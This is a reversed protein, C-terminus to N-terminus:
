SHIPDVLRRMAGAAAAVAVAVAVAAAAAAAAAAAPPLRRRGSAVEYAHGVQLVSWQERYRGRIQMGIQMGTAGIGRPVSLLPAEISPHAMVGAPASSFSVTATM